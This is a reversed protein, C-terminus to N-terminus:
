GNFEREALVGGGGPQGVSLWILTTLLALVTGVALFWQRSRERLSLRKQKESQQGEVM